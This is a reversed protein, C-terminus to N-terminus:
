EEANAETVEEESVKLKSVRFIALNVDGFTISSGPPITAAVDPSLRKDDIFTGNTSNLDTILLSGEKKQIRAHVGSVTAVPIVLDAKEPVRGVTVVSSAIEFPGPMPVKYGIHRSDGDGVPELLWREGDDTTISEVVSAHVSGFDWHQKRKIECFKLKKPSSSFCVCGSALLSANCDFLTPCLKTYFSAPKPLMAYSLSQITLDM